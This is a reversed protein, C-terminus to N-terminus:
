VNEKLQENPNLDPSVGLADRISEKSLMDGVTM